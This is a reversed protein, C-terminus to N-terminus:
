GVVPGRSRGVDPANGATSSPSTPTPTTGRRRRPRGGRRVPLNRYLDALHLGYGLVFEDRLEVGRYRVTTRCSGARRATSCRACTSGRPAGRARAPRRPVRAHPRHRRHGRRARRRPRQHRPRPRAPDAGPGLRARLALDLHLRREVDVDPIARALDALFILAGKLVGVLVVGDPHDRAIEAGLRAVCRALTTARRAPDAAPM